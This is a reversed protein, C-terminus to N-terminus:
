NKKKKEKSRNEIFIDQVLFMPTEPKNWLKRLMDDPSIDILAKYLELIDDYKAGSEAFYSLSKLGIQLEGSDNVAMYTELPDGDYVIIGDRYEVENFSVKWM